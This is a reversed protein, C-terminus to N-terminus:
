IIASKHILKRKKQHTFFLKYLHPKKQPLNSDNVIISPTKYLKLKRWSPVLTYLPADCSTTNQKKPTNLANRQLTMISLAEYPLHKETFSGIM